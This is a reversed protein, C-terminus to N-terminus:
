AGAERLVERAIAEAIQGALPETASAPAPIVAEVRELRIPAPLSPWGRLAAAVERGLRAAEEESM